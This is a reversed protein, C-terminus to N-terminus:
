WRGKRVKEILFNVHHGDQVAARAHDARAAAAANVDALGVSQQLVQVDAGLLYQGGATSEFAKCELPQIAEDTM